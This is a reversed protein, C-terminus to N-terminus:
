FCELHGTTSCSSILHHCYHLASIHTSCYAYAVWHNLKLSSLNALTAKKHKSSAIHSSYQFCVHSTSATIRCIILGKWGVPFIVYLTGIAIYDHMWIKKFYSHSRWDLDNKTEIDDKKNTWHQSLPLFLQWLTVYASASRYGHAIGSTLDFHGTEYGKHYNPNTFQLLLHGM